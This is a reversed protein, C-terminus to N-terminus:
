LTFISIFIIDADLVDNWCIKSISESYIKVDSYIQELITGLIITGQSPTRITKDYIYYNSLANKYPVNSPEIFRIKM